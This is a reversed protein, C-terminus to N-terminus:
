FKCLVFEVQFDEGTMICPRISPGICIYNVSNNLPISENCSCQDIINNLLSLVIIQVHINTLSAYVIWCINARKIEHM